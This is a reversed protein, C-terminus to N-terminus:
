LAATSCKLLATQHLYHHREKGDPDSLVSIFAVQIEKLHSQLLTPLLLFHFSTIQVGYLCKFVGWFHQM